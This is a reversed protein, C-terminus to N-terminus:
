GSMFEEVGGGVDYDTRLTSPDFRPTGMRREQIEKGASQGLWYIADRCSSGYEVQAQGTITVRGSGPLALHPAPPFPDLASHPTSYQQV